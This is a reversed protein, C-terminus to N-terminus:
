WVFAPLTNSWEIHNAYFRFGFQVAVGVEDGIDVTQVNMEDMNTGFM